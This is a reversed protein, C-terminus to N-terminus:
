YTSEESSHSQYLWSLLKLSHRIFIFFPSLELGFLQFGVEQNSWRGEGRGGGGGGRYGGRGGGGGGRHNGGFRGGGRQHRGGGYGARRAVYVRAFLHSPCLAFSFARQILTYYLAESRSVTATNGVTPVAPHSSLCLPFSSPPNKERMSCGRWVEVDEESVGTRWPLRICVSDSVSEMACESM